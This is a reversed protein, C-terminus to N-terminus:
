ETLIPNVFSHSRLYSEFGRALTLEEAIVAFGAM